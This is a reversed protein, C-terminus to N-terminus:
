DVVREIYSQITEFSFFLPDPNQLRRLCLLFISLGHISHYRGNRVGCSRKLQSEIFQSIVIERHGRTTVPYGSPTAISLPESLNEQIVNFILEIFPTVFSLTAGPDLLASFDLNFAWLTSTVM